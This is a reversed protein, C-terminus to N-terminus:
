APEHRFRQAADRSPAQLGSSGIRVLATRHLDSPRARLGFTRRLLSDVIVASATMFSAPYITFSARASTFWAGATRAHPSICSALHAFDGDEGVQGM